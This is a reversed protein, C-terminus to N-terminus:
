ENRAHDSHDIWVIYNFYDIAVSGFLLVIWSCFKMKEVTESRGPDPESGFDYFVLNVSTTNDPIIYGPNSLIGGQPLNGGRRKVIM